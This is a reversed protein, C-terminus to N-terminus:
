KFYRQKFYVQRSSHRSRSKCTRRLTSESQDSVNNPWSQTYNSLGLINPFIKLNSAMGWQFIPPPGDPNYRCLSLSPLMACARRHACVSPLTSFRYSRRSGKQFEQTRPNCQKQCAESKTHVETNVTVSDLFFFRAERPKKRTIDVVFEINSNRSVPSQSMKRPGGSRALASVPPASWHTNFRLSSGPNAMTFSFFRGCGQSVWWWNEILVRSEFFSFSLFM